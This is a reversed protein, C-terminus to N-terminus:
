HRDANSDNELLIGKLRDIEKSVAKEIVEYIINEIKGSFKENILREITTDLREPILDM